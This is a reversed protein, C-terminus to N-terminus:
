APHPLALQITRAYHFDGDVRFDIKADVANECHPCKLRNHTVEDCAGDGIAKRAIAAAIPEPLLEDVTESHKRAAIERLAKSFCENEAKLAVLDNERIATTTDQIQRIIKALERRHSERADIYKKWEDVPLASPPISRIGIAKLFIDFLSM